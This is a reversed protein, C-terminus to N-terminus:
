REDAIHRLHDEILVIYAILGCVLGAVVAGGLLGIVLGIVPGSGVNQASIFGFGGGALIIGIAVLSNLTALMSALIRNM